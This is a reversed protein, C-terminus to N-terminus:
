RPRRRIRTSSPKRAQRRCSRGAESRTSIFLKRPVPVSRMGDCRLRPTRYTPPRRPARPDRVAKTSCRRNDTSRRPRNSKNDPRRLRPILTPPEFTIGFLDFRHNLPGGSTRQREHLGAFLGNVPSEITTPPVHHQSPVLGASPGCSSSPLALDQLTGRCLEGAVLDRGAIRKPYATVTPPWPLQPAGGMTYTTTVPALGRAPPDRCRGCAPPGVAVRERPTARSSFRVRDGRRHPSPSARPATASEM